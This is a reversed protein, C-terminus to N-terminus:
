LVLHGGSDFELPFPEGVAEVDERAEVEELLVESLWLEELHLTNEVILLRVENIREPKLAQRAAEFLAKDDALTMPVAARIPGGSTLCNLYTAEYDIKEVLRETTFDALGIGTANGHSAESLDLVALFQIAPKAPEPIGQLRLRGIVNTDMGTGSYNKGMERVVCLDAHAIPLFPMYGQALELLQTESEPIEPGPLGKVLATEEYANEVIALGGIVPLLELVAGGISTISEVMSNWGLRHVMSAGKDRGMGVALMKMLGSEYPGHFSTHPKVRNIALIGDAEAAERSVYVPLGALPGETEGLQVVDASCLVPAGINEETVGLSRLLDRQGDATGRGHSGMSSFLFPQHGEEKLTQVAAQYVGIADNIGRSGATIGVRSNVALQYRQLLFGVEDRVQQALDPVVSAEFHRRVKVLRLRDISV